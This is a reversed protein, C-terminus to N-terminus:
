EGDQEDSTAITAHVLRGSTDVAWREDHEPMIDVPALADDETWPGLVRSSPIFYGYEGGLWVLPEGAEVYDFHQAVEMSEVADVGRRLWTVGYRSNRGITFYALRTADWDIEITSM